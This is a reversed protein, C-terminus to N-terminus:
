RIENLEHVAVERDVRQASDSVSDGRHAAHPPAAPGVAVGPSVGIGTLREVHVEGFGSDVLQCLATLADAEDSGDAAITITTGCAAALLLIGMISNGDMVGGTARSAPIQADFRTAIHVVEGRRACAPGPPQHQDGRLEDRCRGAGVAPTSAGKLLDSAVWIANRGHERLSRAVEILDQRERFNAAKNLMPLNVGTVVEVKIPRWFTIGSIRHAHRRVHRHCDLVGEPGQVREIAAAIEDRRM